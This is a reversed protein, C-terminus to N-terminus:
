MRVLKGEKVRGWIWEKQNGKLVLAPRGPIDVLCPM